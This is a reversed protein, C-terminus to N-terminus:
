GWDRTPHTGDGTLYPSEMIKKLSWEARQEQFKIMEEMKENTLEDLSKIKFHQTPITFVTYGDRPNGRISIGDVIYKQDLNLM